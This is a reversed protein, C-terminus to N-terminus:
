ANKANALIEAFKKLAQGRHSIANKEEKTLQAMTKSLNTIYFVPDYGFGGTGMLERSIEGHCEGVASIIKGDPFLCVITCVFKAARLEMKEMKELLFNCRETATLSEGGYDKSYVGPAGDLAEICLGSDDAIVPRGTEKCIAQAKILANAYFTDGTEEPEIFVGAQKLSIAEIGYKTLIASMECLKGQNNTAIIFQM